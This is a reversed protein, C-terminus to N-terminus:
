GAHRMVLGALARVHAPTDNLAPIYRFTEGGAALFEDRAETAIEDLTELCDAAFGPCFVDVSHVGQAALERLTVDTYPTLWEKPGFRSQFTILWQDDRLDLRSAIGQASAHCQAAYPDGQDVADKPLGHFSLLLREADGHSARFQRVQEACADLYGADEAYGPILRVRVSSGDRADPIADYTSVTTSQSFQPYLPLVVVCERDRLEHMASALSPNGYRMGLRVPVAHGQAHLERELAECIGRSYVLLPSGQETWVRQYGQASRKPRTRLIVGHLIPKWLLPSLPIVHRDSLFEALYRRVAKPTPADPTGLNSLLVGFSEPTTTM